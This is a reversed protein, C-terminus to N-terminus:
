ATVQKLADCGIPAEEYKKKYKQSPSYIDRRTCGGCGSIFHCRLDGFENENKLQSNTQSHCDPIRRSEGEFHKKKKKKRIRSKRGKKFPCQEKNLHVTSTGRIPLRVMTRERSGGCTEKGCLDVGRKCPSFRKNEFVQPLEKRWDRPSKMPISIKATKREKCDRGTAAQRRTTEQQHSILTLDVNIM